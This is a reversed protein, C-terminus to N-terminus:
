PGSCLSFARAVIYLIGARGAGEASCFLAFLWMSVLFQPTQELFNLYSRDAMEWYKNRYDFRNASKPDGLKMKATIQNVFLFQFLLFYLCTAVIPLAYDQDALVQVKAM